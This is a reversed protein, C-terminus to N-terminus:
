PVTAIGDRVKMPVLKTTTKGTDVVVDFTLKNGKANYIYDFEDSVEFEFCLTNAKIQYEKFDDDNYTVRVICDKKQKPIVINYRM